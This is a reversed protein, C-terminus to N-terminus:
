IEKPIMAPSYNGREIAKAVSEALEDLQQYQEAHSFNFMRKLQKEDALPVDFRKAVMAWLYARKKEGLGQHISAMSKLII